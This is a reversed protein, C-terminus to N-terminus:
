CGAYNKRLPIQTPTLVLETAQLLNRRRDFRTQEFVKPGPDRPVM